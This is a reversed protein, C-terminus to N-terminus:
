WVQNANEDFILQSSSCPNIKVNETRNCQGMHRFNIVMGHCKQAKAALELIRFSFRSSM